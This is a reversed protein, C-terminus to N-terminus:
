WQCVLVLLCEQSKEVIFLVLLHAPLSKTAQRELCRLTRDNYDSAQLASGGREGMPTHTSEKGETSGCSCKQDREVSILGDKTGGKLKERAEHIDVVGHLVPAV